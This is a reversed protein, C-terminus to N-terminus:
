DPRVVSLPMETRADVLIIRGEVRAYFQGAPAVPLALAGPDRIVLALGLQLLRNHRRVFDFM